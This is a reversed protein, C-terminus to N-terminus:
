DQLQMIKNVILKSLEYRKEPFVWTIFDIAIEQSALTGGGHGQKSRLGIARTNRIWLKATLTFSPHKTKEILEKAAEEIFYSNNDKEWLYLFQLTNIDRLCRQIVYNPNDHNKKKAIEALSYMNFTKSFIHELDMLLQAYPENCKVFGLIKKEIDACYKEIDSDSLNALKLAERTHKCKTELYEAIADDFKELGM